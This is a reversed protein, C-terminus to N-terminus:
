DTFQDFVLVSDPKHAHLPGDLLLHAKLVDLRHHGMIKYIGFGNRRHDVLEEPAALQGLKHVLGIGKRLDGMFPSKGSQSGAAKGPFPRPELDPVDMGGMVPPDARHFCRLPGIDAEDDRKGGIGPDVLESKDFGGIAQYFVPPDEVLDAIHSGDLLFIKDDGLRITRQVLIAPKDPLHDGGALAAIENGDFRFLDVVHINRRILEDADGGRENGEQFMVIGVTGEHAGVHLALGHRQHSGGDRYYAGAHLRDHGPIGPGYHGGPPVSHHFAHIRGADDDFAVAGAIVVQVDPHIDVVQDFILTGVLVGAEILLWDDDLAVSHAAPVDDGVTRGRVVTFQGQSSVDHHGEHGPPPVIVFIRNQHTLPDDLLVDIGGDMDFLELGHGPVRFQALLLYGSVDGIYPFLGQLVQVFATDDAHAYGHLGSVNQDALDGGLPLRL